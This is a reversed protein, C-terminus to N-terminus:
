LVNLVQEKAKELEDKMLVVCKQIAADNAKSGTTNIERGFEQLIFSLKKGKSSENAEIISRFYNCHNQLRVQEESIDIKEIYYILEQELRNADYNDKGVWEELLKVINERIKERRLPELAAIQKQQAEINQLRLLLDKEISKGEQLRHQKLQQLATDLIKKFSVWEEDTMVETTNVVVEPLRLVAALLHDAEANLEHAIQVVSTYYAKLLDTNITVPKAGGNQKLNIICEISGRELSESLMSRIDFEFPKLMAPMQLRLDFQKGNLSRLEVIFTKDGISQETRGYGTMSYLM